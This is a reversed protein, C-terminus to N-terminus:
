LQPLVAKDAECMPQLPTVSAYRDALWAADTGPELEAGTDAITVRVFGQGQEAINTQVAGFDALTGRRLGRVQDPPLDPVNLNLVLPEDADMLLPLLTAVFEGATSWHPPGAPSLGVDLSVAMARCGYANGTLAAGVTGSHLVAKGINAGRNVGSLVIDPPDGFAGRTAILAIFAPSAAVGYAPIGALAPLSREEVVVRGKEEVATIAASSGSSERMPAAVVVDLGADRAAGALWHLGPSAIGDDNTILARMRERPPRSM